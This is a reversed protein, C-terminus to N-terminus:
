FYLAGRLGLTGASASFSSARQVNPGSKSRYANWSLNGGWQAGLSLHPTVMWQAGIDGFIGTGYSSSRYLGPANNAQHRFNGLVGLTLTRYVRDGIPRYSRRGLRLTLDGDISSRSQSNTTDQYRNTDRRYNTSLDMVWARTPSTFRVVGAGAFAYSTTFDAGWQGRHFPTVAEQAAIATTAATLALITIALMRTATTM